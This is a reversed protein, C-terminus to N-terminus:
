ILTCKPVGILDIQHCRLVGMAKPSKRFYYSILKSACGMMSQVGSQQFIFNMVVLHITHLFCGANSFNNDTMARMMNLADDRM